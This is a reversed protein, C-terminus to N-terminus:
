GEKKNFIFLKSIYFNVFYLITDVIIKIIVVYESQYKSFFSTLLASLCMVVVALIFFQIITESTKKNTNFVTNKKLLFNVTTSIVRAIVTAVIVKKGFSDDIIKTLGAFIWIDVLFSLFSTLGYKFFEFLILKYIKFSDKIVDFHSESNDNIYITQIPVEIIKINERKTAILMNIEYEYREGELTSFKKANDINFARLGTQTDKLKIGHFIQMAKITTLNGFQSRLPVDKGWTRAGLILANENEILASSCKNIDDLIHQGDADVTVFGIIKGDRIEQEYVNFAYNIGNKLARGKGMNVVHHFVKVSNKFPEHLLENFTSAYADGGGDDIVIIHNYHNVLGVLMEKMLYSPKYAPVLVVISQNM